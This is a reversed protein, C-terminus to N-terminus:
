SMFGNHMSKVMFKKSYVCGNVFANHRTIKNLMWPYSLIYIYVFCLRWRIFVICVFRVLYLYVRMCGYIFVICLATDINVSLNFSQKILDCWFLTFATRYRYECECKLYYFSSFIFLLLSFLLEIHCLSSKVNVIMQRRDSPQTRWRRRRTRRDSCMKEEEEKEWRRRMRRWNWWKPSKTSKALERISNLMIVSASAMAFYM